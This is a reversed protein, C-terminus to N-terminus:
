SLVELIEGHGVVMGGEQLRWIRGPRLEPLLRDWLSFGIEFERADGPQMPARIDLFGTAMERNDPEFFNHNPRYSGVQLPQTRGGEAAGLLTIKARVRVADTM